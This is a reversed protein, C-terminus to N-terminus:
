NSQKLPLVCYHFFVAKPLCSIDLIIRSIGSNLLNEFGKRIGALNGLLPHEEVTYTWNPLRSLKQENKSIKDLIIAAASSRRNHFKFWLSEASLMDCQRSVADFRDEFSLCGIFGWEDQNVECLAKRVLNWPRKM